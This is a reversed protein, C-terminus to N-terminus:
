KVVNVGIPREEAESDAPTVAYGIAAASVPVLGDPLHLEAIIDKQDKTVHIAGWIYCSGLGLDTAAILMNEVICAANGIELGGLPKGSVIILTSAGYNPSLDNGTAQKAAAAIKDILSAKQVVTIHVNDYLGRGIPAMKAARLITQLDSDKIPDPKFARISRRTAIAKTTEM